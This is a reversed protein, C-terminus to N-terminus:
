PRYLQRIGGNLPVVAGSMYTNEVLFQACHAFESPQGLRGIPVNAERKAIMEPTLCNLAPTQFIGPAITNVRIGFRALDRAMPLTLSNVAQKSASYAIYNGQGQEANLSSVFIITGREGKEGPANEKMMAASFRALNFEGVCNVQYLRRM